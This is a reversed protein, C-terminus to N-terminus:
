KRRDIFGRVPPAEEEVEEEPMEVEEEGEPTPSMDELLISLKKKTKEKDKQEPTPGDDEVADINAAKSMNLLYEHIVPSILVSVDITHVGEMVGMTTMSEVLVSLPMGQELIFLTEELIEEDEFKEMYFALAQEPRNYLPPQEWPSNGPEMTLSQGAIPGDLKVAM